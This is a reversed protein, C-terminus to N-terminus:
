SKMLGNLLYNFLYPQPTKMGTELPIFTIVISSSIRSNYDFYVTAEKKGSVTYYYQNFYVFLTFYETLISVVKVMM